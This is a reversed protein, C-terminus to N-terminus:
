NLGHKNLKNLIEDRCNDFGGAEEDFMDGGREEPLLEIVSERVQELIFQKLNVDIIVGIEESDCNCVAKDFHPFPCASTHWEGAYWYYERFLKEIKTLIEPNIDIKEKLQKTMPKKNYKNFKCHIFNNIYKIRM